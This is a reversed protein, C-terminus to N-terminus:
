PLVCLIDEQKLTYYEKGEVKNRFNSNRTLLVKSGISANITDKGVLPSGLHRLIGTNMSKKKTVSTVLGTESVKVSMRKSLIEVESYDSEEEIVQEVFCWSGTPLIRGDRVACFIWYYPVKYYNGYICNTEDTTTLFHFYIKDGVQVNKEIEEGYETHATGDPVAIVTGYIRAHETPNFLPDIHLKLNGYEVTDDLASGVRVIVTNTPSKKIDYSYM